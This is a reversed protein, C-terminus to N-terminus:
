RMTPKSIMELTGIEGLFAKGLDEILIGLYREPPRFVRSSRRPPPPIVDVPENNLESKQVRHKKSVKEELKIKRGSGGDQIFEKELFVAHHSM